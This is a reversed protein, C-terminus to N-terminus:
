IGKVQEEIEDELKRLFRHVNPLKSKAGPWRKGHNSSVSLRVRGRALDALKQQNQKEINSMHNDLLDMINGHHIQFQAQNHTLSMQMEKINTEIHRDLHNPNKWEFLVMWLIPRAEISSLKQSLSGGQDFAFSNDQIHSFDLQDEIFYGGVVDDIWHDAEEQDATPTLLDMEIKSELKEKKKQEVTPQMSFIVEEVEESLDPDAEEKSLREDEDLGLERSIERELELTERNGARNKRCSVKQFSSVPYTETLETINAKVQSDKFLELEKKDKNVCFKEYLRRMGLNDRNLGNLIQPIARGFEMPISCRKFRLNFESINFQCIESKPVFFHIEGTKGNTPFRDIQVKALIFSFLLSACVITRNM